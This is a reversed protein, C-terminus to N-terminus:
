KRLEILTKSFCGCCFCNMFKFIFILNNVNNQLIEVVNTKANNNTFDEVQSALFIYKHDGKKHRIVAAANAELDAVTKFNNFSTKNIPGLQEKFESVKRQFIKKIEEYKCKETENVLYDNHM